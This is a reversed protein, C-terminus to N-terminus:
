FSFRGGVQIARPGGSGFTQGLDTTAQGFAYTQAAPNPNVTDLSTGYGTHNAINFANFIEGFISLRYREKYTFTKTLRFDQTFIPSGFAYTPPLIYGPIKTGSPTKAGLYTTNFATVAAALQAKGSGENLCGYCVGPVPNSSGSTGTLDVGSLFATFPSPAIASANMTL